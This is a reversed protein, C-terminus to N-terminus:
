RAGRSVIAWGALKYLLRAGVNADWRDDGVEVLDFGVIERGGQVLARLLYLAQAWSLGGPVPTGTHPCLSPDLGDIDFSVWVKKPLPRLWTEVIDAFTRGEALLTGMEVDTHSFLDPRERSFQMERAGVDRLGIQVINGIGDVRSRTNYLISAHSWEFGEYAVRLDAHADIHLIGVGPCHDAIAEHAGFPVSHDGGLVAPIRGQALISAVQARVAHNLEAGIENVRHAARTLAPDGHPGGAAIVAESLASAEANWAEFREDLPLLAVGARWADGTELDHLDVQQSAEFVLQPANATGKGFSATAEFPVAVVLVAADDPTHPLGFLTDSTGAADPDFEPNM